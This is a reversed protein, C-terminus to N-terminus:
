PWSVVEPTLAPGLVVTRELDSLDISAGIWGARRAGDRLPSRAMFRLTGLDAGDIFEALLVISRLRDYSIILYDPM